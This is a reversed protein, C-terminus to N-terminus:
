SQSGFGDLASFFIDQRTWHDFNILDRGKLDSVLMDEQVTETSKEAGRLYWKFRKQLQSPNKGTARMQVHRMMGRLVSVNSFM